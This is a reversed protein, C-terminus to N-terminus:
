FHERNTPNNLVGFMVLITGIANVVVDWTTSDIGVKEFVGFTNLLMGVAGLVSLWVPWSKLREKIM